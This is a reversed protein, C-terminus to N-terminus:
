RGRMVLTRRDLVILDQRHSDLSRDSTIIGKSQYEGVWEIDVCGIMVKDDGLRM